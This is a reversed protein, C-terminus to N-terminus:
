VGCAGCPAGRAGGRRARRGGVGFHAGRRAVIRAAAISSIASTPATAAEPHSSLRGFLHLGLLNCLRALGLVELFFHASEHPTQETPAAAAAAAHASLADSFVHWRERHLVQLHEFLVAWFFHWFVQPTQEIWTSPAGFVIAHSQEAPHAAAARGGAAGRGRCMPRALGARGGRPAARAAEGTAGAGHAGARGVPQGLPEEVEGGSARGAGRRRRTAAEAVARVLRHHLRADAHLAAAAVRGAGPVFARRGAAAAGVGGARGGARGGSDRARAARGESVGRGQGGGGRRATQGLSMGSHM